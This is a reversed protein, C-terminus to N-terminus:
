RDTSRRTRVTGNATNPTPTNPTPTKGPSATGHCPRKASRVKKLPPIVARREERTTARGNEYKQAANPPM